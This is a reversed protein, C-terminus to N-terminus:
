VIVSTPEDTFTLTGSNYNKNPNSKCKDFHWAGMVLMNGTKGCHPCTKMPMPHKEFQNAPNHKCNDFHWRYANAPQCSQHCHPCKLNKRKESIAKKIALKHADSLPGQMNETNKKPQRLKQLHDDSFKRGRLAVSQKRKTEESHHKGKMGSSGGLHHQRIKERVEDTFIVEAGRAMNYYEGSDLDISKLLNQEFKLCEDKTGKFLIERKWEINPNNFDSWFQDSSSSAIYGDDLTGKHYGLYKKSKTINNWVYVFAENM